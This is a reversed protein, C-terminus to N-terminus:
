IEYGILPHMNQSLQFFEFTAYRGPARFDIKKKIKWSLSRQGLTMTQIPLLQGMKNALLGQFTKEFIYV